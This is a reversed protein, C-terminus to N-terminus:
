LIVTGKTRGKQLLEELREPSRGNIIWCSRVEGLAKPFARDICGYRKLEERQVQSLLAAHPDSRPDREFIGDVDKLLILVKAQVIGALYAAISDSTVDWSPKFPDSRLLLRSPLLIPLGGWRLIAKVERLSWAPRGRKSLDSLLYGYQDMALIAMRHVTTEQLPYRRHHDRVVDAFAGGGPVILLKFHRSLRGITEMLGELGGGVGLSGGVKITADIRM